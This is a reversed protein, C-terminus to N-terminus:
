VEEIEIDFLDEEYESGEIKWGDIYSEKALEAEERAEEETEYTYGFDESDRLQGCDYSIIYKYM